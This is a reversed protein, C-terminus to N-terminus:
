WTTSSLMQIELWSLFLEAHVAQAVSDRRFLLSPM